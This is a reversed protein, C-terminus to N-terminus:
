QAVKMQIMSIRHLPMLNVRGPSHFYYIGEPKIVYEGPKLVIAAEESPYGMLYIMAAFQSSDLSLKLNM